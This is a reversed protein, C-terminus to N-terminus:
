KLVNLSAFAVNFLHPAFHVLTYIKVALAIRILEQSYYKEKKHVSAIQKVIDSVRVGFGFLLFSHKDVCWGDNFIDVSFLVFFLIAL